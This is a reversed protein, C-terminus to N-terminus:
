VNDIYDLIQKKIVSTQLSMRFLDVQNEGKTSFTWRLKLLVLYFFISRSIGFGTGEAKKNIDASAM